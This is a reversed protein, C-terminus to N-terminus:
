PRGKINLLQKLRQVMQSVRFSSKESLRPGARTDFIETDRTVVGCVVRRPWEFPSLRKFCAFSILVKDFRQSADRRIEGISRYYFVLIAETTADLGIRRGLRSRAAAIPLSPLFKALLHGKLKVMRRCLRGLTHKREPLDSMSRFTEETAM